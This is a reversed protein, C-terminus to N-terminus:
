QIGKTFLVTLIHATRRTVREITCEHCKQMENKPNLFIKHKINNQYCENAREWGSHPISPSCKCLLGAWLVKYRTSPPLVLFTYFLFLIFSIWHTHTHGKNPIYVYLHVIESTPCTPFSTQSPLLQNSRGKSVAGGGWFLCLRCQREEEQGALNFIM